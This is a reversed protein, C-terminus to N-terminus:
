FEEWNKDDVAETKPAAGGRGTTKLATTSRALAPKQQRPPKTATRPEAHSQARGVEFGAILRSLADTEKSLAHSAATSEEVMAANQQTVQDMQNVATNVQELGTAQEQASAAIDIVISNIEGVKTVIRELAQSTQDVLSVGQEVQAGSASILTKIEKAAEASRQALARVESAVVAFGRGADGARAAEVGANLALLNTQFAIEDIVGIIQGIQNSSREIGSMAEMAQRVIRGSLEADKKTEGVVDRAHRSGQATKRVTATIEDLAAATEELSAAQQETRRSLDEAATSIEGTGSQIASTNGAVVVMTDQLKAMAGNFDVRLQDYDAAFTQGIRYTLAGNSLKDLGQAIADVVQAQQQAVGARDKENRARDEDSQRRADQSQAELRVKEIGAQRFVQVAAAMQGIEDAQGIAPIDVQTNGSALHRMVGTMAKLPSAVARVIVWAMVIGLVLSLLGSIAVIAEIQDMSRNGAETWGDSWANAKERLAALSQESAAMAAAFPESGLMTMAQPRKAPDSALETVPDIGTKVFRDIAAQAADLAPLLEPADKVLIARISAADKRTEDLSSATRAKDKDNGFVGFRDAGASAAAMDTMMQDTLDVADDSTSNLREIEAVRQTQVFIFVSSLAVITLVVGFGIALKRALPFDRFQLPAM